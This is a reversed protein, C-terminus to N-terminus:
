AAFHARRESKRRRSYRRETTGQLLLLLLKNIWDNMGCMRVCEIICPYSCLGIVELKEVRTANIGAYSMINSRPQSLYRLVVPRGKIFVSLEERLNIWVVPYKYRPRPQPLKDAEAAM